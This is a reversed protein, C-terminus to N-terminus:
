RKTPLTLHTYSVAVIRDHARRLSTGTPIMRVADSPPSRSYKWHDVKRIAGNLSFKVEGGNFKLALEFVGQIRRISHSDLRRKPRHLSWRRTTPIAKRVAAM